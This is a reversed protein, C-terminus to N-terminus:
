AACPIGAFRYAIAPKGSRGFGILDPAICRAVTAVHLIINRWIFSPPPNGHLFAAVPDHTANAERYAMTSGLVPTESLAIAATGITTM